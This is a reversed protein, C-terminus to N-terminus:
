SEEDEAPDPNGTCQGLHVCPSVPCRHYNSRVLAFLYPSMHILSHIICRTLVGDLSGADKDEDKVKVNSIDEVNAVVTDEEKFKITDNEEVEQKLETEMLKSDPEQPQHVRFVITKTGPTDVALKFCYHSWTPLVNDIKLFVTDGCVSINDTKNIIISNM